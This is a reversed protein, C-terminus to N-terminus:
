TSRAAAVAAAAAAGNNFQSLEVNVGAQKFFGNAQAYYAEANSDNLSSGLRITIPLPTLDAAGTSLPALLAVAVLISLVHRM